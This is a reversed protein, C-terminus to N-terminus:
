TSPGELLPGFDTTEKTSLPHTFNARKWPEILQDLPTPNWLSDIISFWYEINNLKLGGFVMSREHMKLNLGCQEVFM